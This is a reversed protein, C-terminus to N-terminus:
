CSRGGTPSTVISTTFINLLYFPNFSNWIVLVTLLQGLAPLPPLQLFSSCPSFFVFFANLVVTIDTHKVSSTFALPLFPLVSHTELIRLRQLTSPFNGFAIFRLNSEGIDIENWSVVRTLRSPHSTEWRHTASIKWIRCGQIPQGHVKRCYQKRYPSPLLVRTRIDLM